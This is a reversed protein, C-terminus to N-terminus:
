SLLPPVVESGPPYIPYPNVGKARSVLNYYCPPFHQWELQAMWADGPVPEKMNAFFSSLMSPTGISGTYPGLKAYPIQVYPTVSGNKVAKDFHEVFGRVVLGFTSKDLPPGGYSQGGPSEGGWLQKMQDMNWFAYPVLDWPNAWAISGPFNTTYLNYFGQTGATPPAFPQPIIPAVCGSQSKMWTALMTAQCAGLSHGTVVIPVNGTIQSSLFTQLTTGVNVADGIPVLQLIKNFLGEHSGKAVYPLPNASSGAPCQVQNLADIDQWVQNIIGAKILDRVDTGRISVVLFLPKGGQSYTAVFALNSYDTPSAATGYGPGWTLSFTGPYDAIAPLLPTAGAPGELANKIGTAVDPQPPAPDPTQVDTYALSALALYTLAYQPSNLASILTSDAPTGSM